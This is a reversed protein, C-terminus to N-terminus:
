AGHPTPDSHRAEFGPLRYLMRRYSKHRQFHAGDRRGSFHKEEYRRIAAGFRWRIARMLWPHSADLRALTLDYVPRIAETYARQILDFTPAIRATLDTDRVLEFPSARMLALYSVLDKGGGIPSPEDSPLKFIDSILLYGGPRLLAQARALAPAAKMFLFSESFMLLDYRRDTELAEFKTQFITTRDGLLSKAEQSLFPNPSVCDVRYGLNLLRHATQGAGCGVDLISRVEAPIDAILEETYRAQARPLQDPTVPLDEDWYGYHLDEMGLAFRGLLFGVALGFEPSRLVPAAHEPPTSSTTMTSPTPGQTSHREPITESGDV